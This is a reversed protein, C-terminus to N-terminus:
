WRRLRPRPWPPSPFSCRPGARRSLAHRRAPGSRFSSFRQSLLRPSGCSSIRQAPGSLRILQARYLRRRAPSSPPSQQRRNAPSRALTAKRKLGPRVTLPSLSIANKEQWPNRVRKPARQHFHVWGGASGAPVPRRKSDLERHSELGDDINLPAANPTVLREHAPRLALAGPESSARAM